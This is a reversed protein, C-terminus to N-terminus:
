EKPENNDKNKLKDYSNIGFLLLIFSSGITLVTTLLSFDNHKFAWYTWTLVPTVFCFITSVLATLKKGSAGDPANNFSGLLSNWLENM